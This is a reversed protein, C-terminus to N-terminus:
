LPLRFYADSVSGLPYEIGSVHDQRVVEGALAVGGFRDSSATPVVVLTEM